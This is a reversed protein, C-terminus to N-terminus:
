NRLNRLWGLSAASEAKSKHLGAADALAVAFESFAQGQATIINGDIVV